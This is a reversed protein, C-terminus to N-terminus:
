KGLGELPNSVKRDASACFGLRKYGTNPKWSYCDIGFSSLIRAMDRQYISLKDSPAKVEVGSVTGDLGVCCFDPWGRRLIKYNNGVSNVFAREVKTSKGVSSSVEQYLSVKMDSNLAKKRAFFRKVRCVRCYVSGLSGGVTVVYALGDAKRDRRDIWRELGCEPCAERSMLRMSGDQRHFIKVDGISSM